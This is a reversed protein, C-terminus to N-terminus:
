KIIYKNAARSGDSRYKPIIRIAGVRELRHLNRSITSRSLNLTDSIKRQPIIITGKNDALEDLVLYLLKGTITTNINGILRFKSLKKMPSKEKRDLISNLALVKQQRKIEINVKINQTLM